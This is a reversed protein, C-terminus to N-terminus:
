SHRLTFKAELVHLSASIEQRSVLGMWVTIFSFCLIIMLSMLWRANDNLSLLEPLVAGFGALIVAAVIRSWNHPLPYYWQGIVVYALFVAFCSLLKAIGGGTIGFEPILIYNLIFNLFAGCINILLILKTKKAISIGPSFIYMKSLLLAPVLYIVLESAEHYAPTTLLFLIDKSFLTISLFLLLAFLIFIRFILVLQRPTESKGYNAYVLPTLASEFGVIFLGAVSALRYGMGFLGVEEITLFYNIMVRDICLSVWVAVGSFVLPSSFHLMEKLQAFSFEFRISSRLLWTALMTSILTSLVMAVFLGMLGFNLFYVLWVSFAATATVNILSVLAYHKSRMEWRFQNELLYYIGNVWIYAVGLLFEVELGKRGMVFYAIDSAVMLMSIAFLSYCILTFWFATSAIVVKRSNDTETAYLRGLGQSVELAITLNIISAFVMFLDFSGYDGTSLVRTNLPVLILSLGRSLFSPVAYTVSDKLFVRLM